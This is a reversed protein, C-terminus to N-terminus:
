VVVAPQDSVSNSDCFVNEAAEGVTSTSVCDSRKSRPLSRTLPPESLADHSVSLVRVVFWSLVNSVCVASASM